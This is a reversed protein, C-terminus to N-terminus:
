AAMRELRRDAAWERRRDFGHGDRREATPTLRINANLRRELHVRRDVRVRRESFDVNSGPALHHQAFTELDGSRYIVDGDRYFFPILPDFRRDHDLWMSASKHPMFRQLLMSAEYATLWRSQHTSQM